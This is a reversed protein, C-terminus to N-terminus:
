IDCYINNHLISRVRYIRRQGDFRQTENKNNLLNKKYLNKYPNKVLM